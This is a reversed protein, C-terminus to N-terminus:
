STALCGVRYLAKLVGASPGRLSEQLAHLLIVSFAALTRFHLIWGTIHLSQIEIISPTM